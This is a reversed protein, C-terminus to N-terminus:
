SWFGGNFRKLLDRSTWETLYIETVFLWKKICVLNILGCALSGPMKRNAALGSRAFTLPPKLCITEGNM